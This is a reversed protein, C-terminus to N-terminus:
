NQCVLHKYLQHNCLTHTYESDVCDRLGFRGVRLCIQDDTCDTCPDVNSVPESVADDALLLIYCANVVFSHMVYSCAHMVCTAHM